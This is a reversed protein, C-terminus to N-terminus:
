IKLASCLDDLKSKLTAAANALAVPAIGLANWAEMSLPPVPPMPQAAIGLATVLLDAVHVVAAEPYRYPDEVQHHRLVAIVLPLPMNWRHLLMGGFKAHDFDILAKEIVYNPKADSEYAKNLAAMVHPAAYALALQGCDHLIGAVFLQEGDKRGSLKWIEQSVVGVAVSHRWFLEMSLLGKPLLVALSNLAGGIALTRIQRTGVLAVARSITSVKASFGYFPSNVLKLLWATLGTDKAIIAAIQDASFNHRQLVDQLELMVAPLPPLRVELQVVDLPDLPAIEPVPPAANGNSEPPKTYGSELNWQLALSYVMEVVPNGREMFRFRHDFFATDEAAPQLPTQSEAPQAPTM